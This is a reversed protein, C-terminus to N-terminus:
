RYLAMMLATFSLIFCVIYISLVAERQSFGARMLMHHIHKKDARFVPNGEKMRRGIAFLTDFIPVGLILLPIILAVVLTTKFVGTISATALIFGLLLSGSDGLFIKAPFFNYKLFGLAAAALVLMILAAGYSYTTLAVFFFTGASIATVGAALGDLGDILNIANTIGVIWFITLPVSVYAPMAVLGNFPNTLFSIEVGFSYVILAAIIQWFFKTSAKLSHIDDLIGVVLILSAGLVIGIISNIQFDMGIYYAILLGVLLATLFGSFIAIGGFRPIIQSHIKRENPTDVAGIKFALKEALPTVLITILLAVAFSIPFLYM